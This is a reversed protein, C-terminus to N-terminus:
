SRGGEGKNETKGNGEGCMVKFKRLFGRRVVVDRALWMETVRVGGDGLMATPQKNTEYPGIQLKMRM